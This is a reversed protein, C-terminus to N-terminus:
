CRNGWSHFSTENKKNKWRLLHLMAHQAVLRVYRDGREDTMGIESSANIIINKQPGYAVGLSGDNIQKEPRFYYRVRATRESTVKRFEIKCINSIEKLAEEVEKHTEAPTQNLAHGDPELWYRVTQAHSTPICHFLSTCLFVLCIFKLKVKECKM